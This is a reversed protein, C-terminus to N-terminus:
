ASACVCVYVCPSLSAVSSPMALVKLLSKLLDTRLTENELNMALRLLADPIEKRNYKNDAIFPKSYINTLLLVISKFIRPESVLAIDTM